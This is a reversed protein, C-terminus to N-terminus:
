QAAGWDMGALVGLTLGDVDSDMGFPAVKSGVVERAELGLHWPGWHWILGAQGYFGYGGDQDSARGYGDSVQVDAEIYSAGAGLYLSLDGVRPMLKFGLVVESLELRTRRSTIQGGSSSCNDYCERGNGTSVQIGGSVYLPVAEYPRVDSFVGVMTARDVPEWDSQSFTRDGVILTANFNSAIAMPAFVTALVILVTRLM